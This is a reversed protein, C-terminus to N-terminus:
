KAKSRVAVVVAGLVVAGLVVSAASVGSRATTSPVNPGPPLNPIGTDDVVKLAAGPTTTVPGLPM